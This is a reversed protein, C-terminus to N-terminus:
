RVNFFIQSQEMESNTLSLSPNIKVKMPKNPLQQAAAPNVKIRLRQVVMEINQPHRDQSLLTRESAATVCPTACVVCSVSVGHSLPHDNRGSAM